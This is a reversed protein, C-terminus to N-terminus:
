IGEKDFLQILQKVLPSRVIDDVDFTVVKWPLPAFTTGMIDDNLPQNKSLEILKNLGSEGRIDKQNIDGSIILKTDKGLRTLVAKIEHWTCNEAEDLIILSNDMSLGRIHELSLLQIVGHEVMKDVQEKAYFGGGLRAQVASLIPAAWVKLKEELGGPLYGMSKGPGEPPRIVVIRRITNSPDGLWDTGLVSPIYTKGTGAPGLAVVISSNKIVNIYETQKRNLGKLPERNVYVNSVERFSREEQQRERKSNKPGPTMKDRSNSYNKRGM